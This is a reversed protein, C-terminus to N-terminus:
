LLGVQVWMCRAEFLAAIVGYMCLVLCCVSSYDRWVSFQAAYLAAIVGHLFSFLM